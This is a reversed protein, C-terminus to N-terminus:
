TQEDVPALATARSRSHRPSRERSRPCSGYRQLEGVLPRELARGFRRCQLTQDRPASLQTDHGDAASDSPPERCLSVRCACAERLRSMSSRNHHRLSPRRLHPPQGLLAGGASARVTESRRRLAIRRHRARTMRRADGGLAPFMRPFAEMGHRGRDLPPRTPTEMRTSPVDPRSTSSYRRFM